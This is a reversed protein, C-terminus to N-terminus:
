VPPYKYWCQIKATWDQVNAGHEWVLVTVDGRQATWIRYGNATTEVNPILAFESGSFYGVFDQARSNSKAMAQLIKSKMEDTAVPILKDTSVFSIRKM